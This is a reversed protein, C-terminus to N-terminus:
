QQQQQQQLEQHHRFSNRSFSRITSPVEQTIEHMGKTATGDEYEVAVTVELVHDAAGRYTGKVPSCDTFNKGVALRVHKERVLCNNTPDLGVWGIGPIYSEVWAHTAGEGRMNGRHPCIYGSVYRSPIKVIRLMFLLIHAFDQCVGSKLNWIEDPTTEVTTVGKQYKFNRYVYACFDQAVQLPPCNKCQEKQIVADVEPRGKFHELKLFDFFQIQHPLRELLAWQEEYPMANKAITRSHIKVELHSDIVLQQHPHPHTFVGVENGFYDTYLAVQPHGTIKIQHSLVDQYEDKIPYLMIQNASERVPEDYKYHTIHRIKFRSM